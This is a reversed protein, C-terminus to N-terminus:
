RYFTEEITGDRHYSNVRVWGNAQFTEVTVNDKNISILVREGETNKGEYPYESEGYEDMLALIGKFDQSDFKIM